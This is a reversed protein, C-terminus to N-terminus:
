QLEMWLTSRSTEARASVTERPRGPIHCDCCSKDTANTNNIKSLLSTECESKVQRRENHWRPRNESYAIMALPPVKGSQSECVALENM